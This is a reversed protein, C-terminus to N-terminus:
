RYSRASVTSLLSVGKKFSGKGGSSKGELSVPPPAPPVANGRPWLKVPEKKETNPGSLAPFNGGQKTIDSFSFKQPASASTAILPEPEKVEPSPENTADSASESVPAAGVVPGTLLDKISDARSKWKAKELQVKSRLKDEEAKSQKEMQKIREARLKERKQIEALFPQLTTPDVHPSLDIEVLTVEAFLPLHRVFSYIKRTESSVVVKEFAIVRASINKPVPSISLLCRRYLPHLLCLEGFTGQYFLLTEQSKEHRMEEKDVAYLQSSYAPTKTVSNRNRAREDEISVLAAAVFPLYEAGYRFEFCEGNQQAECESHLRLLYAQEADLSNNLREECDSIFRSFTANRSSFDPIDSILGPPADDMVATPCISGGKSVSCLQFTYDLGEALRQMSLQFTVAKLDNSLMCESCIPCSSYGEYSLHRLLCMHCYIHGCKTIRSSDVDCLDMCIACQPFPRHVEDFQVVVCTIKEWDILKDPNDTAVSRAFHPHVLFKYNALCYALRSQHNRERLGAQRKFSGNRPPPPTEEPTAFHFGLLDSSLAQGKSRRGGGEVAM